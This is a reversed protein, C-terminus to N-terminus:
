NLQTIQHLVHKASSVAGDMYGPHHAATEAGAIMLKGDWYSDRYAAHGNHQHPLVHSNYDSYTM